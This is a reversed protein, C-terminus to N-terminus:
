FNVVMSQIGNGAVTGKFTQNPNNPNQVELVHKRNDAFLDFTYILASNANFRGRVTRGKNYYAHISDSGNAKRQVWAGGDVRYTLYKPTVNMFPAAVDRWNLMGYHTFDGVYQNIGFYNNNPAYGDYQKVQGNQYFRDKGPAWESINIIKSKDSNAKINLGWDVYTTGWEQAIFPLLMLIAPDLPKKDSREFVGNPLQIQTAWGPLWEHVGFAFVGGEKGMMKMVEMLFIAGYLYKDVNDTNNIYVDAVALTTHALSQGPSFLSTPWQDTPKEYLFEHQAVTAENLRYFNSNPFQGFRTFYNHAFKYPLGRADMVERVGRNYGRWMPNNEPIYDDGEMTENILLQSPDNYRRGIEYAEQESYPGNPWWDPNYGKNGWGGRNAYNLGFLERIRPVDNYEKNKYTPDNRFKQEGGEDQVWYKSWHTVGKSMAQALTYTDKNPPKVYVRGAPMTMPPSTEIWQPNREAPDYNSPLAPSKFKEM